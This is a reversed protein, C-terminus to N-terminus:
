VEILVGNEYRFPFGLFHLCIHLSLQKVHVRHQNDELSISNHKDHQSWCRPLPTEQEDVEPYLLKLQDSMDKQEEAGRGGGNGVQLLEIEEANQETLRQETGEKDGHETGEEGREITLSTEQEGTGM